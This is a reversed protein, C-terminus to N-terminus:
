DVIENALAGVAAGGSVLGINKINKKAMGVDRSNYVVKGNKAPTNWMKRFGKTFAGDAIGIAKKIAPMVGAIKDFEKAFSELAVLSSQKDLGGMQSLAYQAGSIFAQDAIQQNEEKNYLNFTNKVEGVEKDGQINGIGYGIGAGAMGTGALALLQKLNFNM